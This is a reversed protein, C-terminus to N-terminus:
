SENKGHSEMRGGGGGYSQNCLGRGWGALGRDVDRELPEDERVAQREDYVLIV